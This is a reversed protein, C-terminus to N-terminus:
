GVFNVTRGGRVVVVRKWQKGKHNEMWKKGEDSREIQMLVWAQLEAGWAKQLLDPPPQAIDIAIRLKGNEQVACTQRRKALMDSSGDLQPFRQLFISEPEGRPSAGSSSDPYSHLREWCEEAFAPAVPALMRLLASIAEYVVRSYAMDQSSTSLTNTLKILDSIVTNLTFTDSLATTVSQITNQVVLWIDAEVAKLSSANFSPSDSIRDILIDQKALRSQVDEVLRWLRGFWRQIGIIRDEDWELVEGIPAQFLIHARVADAGHSKICDIPDVGNYKSKSMKEWSIIPDQRSQIIKPKSPESLDLEEPRLFRGTLPDSYTKGQVMGQTILRHFPEGCNEPGGGSPWLHTTALFKGIFRAYLLHLIAHEVGGIYIDVPLMADALDPDFPQSVNTSNVFRMYYWSSDVFTDMTDTDRKADEGCSPCKTNVWGEASELPNGDRGKFWDRHLEPLEVPLQNHPVPVAGCQKCHIIPIPTGWYRQRSVLWDRLRWTQADKALGGIKRLDAIITKAADASPLGSFKACATSLVGQPTFASKSTANSTQAISNVFDTASVVVQRITKHENRRWFSHDREDHAPVGMVAGEGYDQLVYPAVYVPLPQKVFDPMDPLSALPNVAYIKPLRFGAKSDGDQESITDLFSLLDPHQKALSTVLPHSASLALYQVGFLTDPRTTFVEVSGPFSEIANDAKIFFRVNTGESKGLWNRQMALVREPWCNGDSLRDLDQLLADRFATIRIFWQKLM